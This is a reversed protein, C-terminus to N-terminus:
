KFSRRFTKLEENELFIDVSNRVGTFAADLNTLQNKSLDLIQLNKLNSFTDKEIFKLRNHSLDLCKLQKLNSFIDQEIVELNCDILFLKRLMPFQNIFEKELKKINCSILALSDLNLFNHCDFLKYFTKLDIKSLSLNLIEIQNCLNKFLEINFSDKITGSLSLTKLNFLSDLDFYSFDGRLFLEEIHRVDDLIKTIINQDITCSIELSM